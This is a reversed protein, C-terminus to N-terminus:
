IMKLHIINDSHNAFLKNLHIGLYMLAGGSFVENTEENIYNADENLGKWKLRKLLSTNELSLRNFLENSALKEPKMYNPFCKLNLFNTIKKCIPLEEEVFTVHDGIYLKEFKSLINDKDDVDIHYETSNPNEKRFQSIVSSTDELLKINFQSSGNNTTITFDRPILKLTDVLYSKQNNFTNLFTSSSDNKKNYKDRIFEIHETERKSLKNSLKNFM